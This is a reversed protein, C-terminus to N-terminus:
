GVWVSTCIHACDVGPKMQTGLPPRSPPSAVCWKDVADLDGQGACRWHFWTKCADCRVWQEKDVVLPTETSDTKCAPCTDDQKQQGKQEGEQVAQAQSDDDTAGIPDPTKQARGPRRRSRAM